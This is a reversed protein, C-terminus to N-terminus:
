PMVAFVPSNETLTKDAITVVRADKPLTPKIAAYHSSSLLVTTNIRQLAGDRELFIYSEQGEYRLATLPVLTEDDVKHTLVQVPLTEGVRLKTNPPVDVWVDFLKGPGKAQHGVARVNGQQNNPLLVTTGEAIHELDTPVVRLQLEIQNTSFQALPAGPGVDQGVDVAYHLVRGDFPAYETSKKLQEAADAEAARAANVAYTAVDCSKEMQEAQLQTMDGAAALQADVKQQACVFQQEREARKRESTTRKARAEIDPASLEIIKTGKTMSEGENTQLSRVTGPVRANIHVNAMPVVHALHRQSTTLPGQRVNEVRVAIKQPAELITPEEGPGCAVATTLLFLTTLM